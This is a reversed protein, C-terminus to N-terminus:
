GQQQQQQQQPQQPQQPQQQQSEEVDTGGVCRDCQERFDLPHWTGSEYKGLTCYFSEFAGTFTIRSLFPPSDPNHSRYAHAMVDCFASFNAEYRFMTEEFHAFVHHMIATQESFVHVGHHLGHYPLECGCSNMSNRCVLKFVPVSFVGLMAYLKVRGAIVPESDWENKKDCLCRLTKPPPSVFLLMAHPDENPVFILKPAGRDAQNADAGQIPTAAVGFYQLFYKMLQRELRLVSPDRWHDSNPDFFSDMDIGEIGALRMVGLTKSSFNYLGTSVDFHSERSTQLQQMCVADYARQFVGAPCVSRFFQLHSCLKLSGLLSYAPEPSTASVATMTCYTSCLNSGCHLRIQNSHPLKALFVNFARTGSDMADWVSFFLSGNRRNLPGLCFNAKISVYEEHATVALERGRVEDSADYAGIAAAYLPLLQTDIRRQLSPYRKYLRTSLKCLQLCFLIHVCTRQPIPALQACFHACECQHHRNSTRILVHVTNFRSIQAMGGRGTHSTPACLPVCFEAMTIDQLQPSLSVYKIHADM